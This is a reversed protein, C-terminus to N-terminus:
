KVTEEHRKRRLEDLFLVVTVSLPAIIDYFVSPIVLVIFRAWEESIKLLGALFGYVTREPAVAGSQAIARNTEAIAEQIRRRDAYLETAGGRTFYAGEVIASINDNIQALEATQQRLQEDLRQREDSNDKVAKEKAAWNYNEFNVAVTSFMSYSVVLVGLIIFMVGLLRTGKNEKLFYRGATFATSSFMIMIVGTTLAIFPEVTGLLMFLMTNRASIIVAGIAIVAMVVEVMFPVTKWYPPLLPSPAPAKVIPESPLHHITEKVTPTLASAPEKKEAKEATDRLKFTSVRYQKHDAIVPPKPAPKPAPEPEAVPKLEGTAVAHNFDYRQVNLKQRRLLEKVVGGTANLSAFEGVSLAIGNSFLVQEKGKIYKFGTGGYEKIDM